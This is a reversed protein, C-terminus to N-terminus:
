GGQNPSLEAGTFYLPYNRNGLKGLVSFVCLVRNWHTSWLHFRKTIKSVKPGTKLALLFAHGPLPPFPGKLLSLLYLMRFPSHQGGEPGPALAKTKQAPRQSWSCM